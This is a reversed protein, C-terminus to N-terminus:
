KVETTLESKIVRVAQLFLEYLVETRKRNYMDLIQVERQKEACKVLGVLIMANIYFQM